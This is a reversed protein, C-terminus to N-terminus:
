SGPHHFGPINRKALQFYVFCGACFGFLLNTLALLIVIWALAWGAAPSGSYLLVSGAALVLGGLLQAFQHPASNEHVVDPKMIGLPKIVYRYIHKFLAAVPLFSGALLVVAVCAPLVPLDFVFGTGVFGVIGIQNFRLASRDIRQVDSGM